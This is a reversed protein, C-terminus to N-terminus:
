VVVLIQWSVPIRGHMWLEQDYVIAFKTEENHYGRVSADLIEVEPETIIVVDKLINESRISLNGSNWIAVQASTINECGLDVGRYLVRLDPSCEVASVVTTRVPNVAYVLERHDKSVAWLVTPIIIGAIALILAAIGVPNTKQEHKVATEKTRREARAKKLRPSLGKAVRKAM